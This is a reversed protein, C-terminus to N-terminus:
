GGEGRPAFRISVRRPNGALITGPAPHQSVARGRGQMEVELGIRTTARRVEETSLGSFDPLLLRDDLTVITLSPRPKGENRAPPQSKRVPPEPRSAKGPLEPDPHISATRPLSLEPQTLIGHRILHGAAVRAFLPAATAGGTHAIGAPEDLMVVIVIKPDDAPAVGAFWALYSKTSYTGTELDLKQATGTKGAVRVNELAARRGTGETSVVTEMMRLVADAVEARVAQRGPAPEAPQWAGGAERRAAVLRPQLWRGGNALAATAAALQIATVGVGQGYSITAHDVERWKRWSRLLGASEEPFGSGTRTGFGFRRLTEFHAQPGVEFGVKAAGINSSVRLVGALDVIGFPKRDRLTKGKIRFFGQECDIEDRASVAGHQLGAAIVFPKLVSGPEMADLFAHSRTAQFPTTRFRNPDFGPVESLALVDGTRPDMSVVTGRRAGTTAIVEELSADIEAQLTADLTLAVDGGAASRPDLGSDVLLHGHADREVTIRQATGRLWANEKQEIGRAGEGDINAFGLVRGALKRHPYARRPEDVIGVGPLDLARVAEAQEPRIWRRLYVFRSTVELRKRVSATDTGLAAALARATEAEDAIATRTAYVSPASVTVALEAGSRDVILGRAAALRLTGSCQKGAREPGRPDIMTLQAARVALLAFCGLLVACAVRLRLGPRSLDASRM